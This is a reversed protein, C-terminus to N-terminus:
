SPAPPCPSEGSRAAARVVAPDRDECGEIRRAVATATTSSKPPAGNTALPANASRACQPSPVSSGPSAQSSPLRTLPSPQSAFQVGVPPPLPMTVAPSSHSSPFSESASVQPLSQLCTTQPSPTTSPPSSHSSPLGKSSSSQEGKQVFTAPGYPTPSVSTVKVYKEAGNAASRRMSARMQYGAATGGGAPVVTSVAGCSTGAGAPRKGSRRWDCPKPAGDNSEM